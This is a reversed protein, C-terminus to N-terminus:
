YELIYIVYFTCVEWTVGQFLVLHDPDVEHIAVAAEDYLTQLKLRDAFGPILLSPEKYINGAWPENILEYGIIEHRGAFTSAIKKWYEAFRTRLAPQDYLNGVAESTSFTFYFKTWVNNNISDCTEKTPSGTVPDVPVPKAIPMPFTDKKVVSIWDPAGNGCYMENWADQHFEIVTHIGYQGARTVIDSMLGLYTENFWGDIPEVAVRIIITSQNM